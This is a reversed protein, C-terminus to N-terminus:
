GGCYPSIMEVMKKHRQPIIQQITKKNIILEDGFTQLLNDAIQKVNEECIEIRQKFMECTARVHKSTPAEFNIFDKLEHYSNNYMSVIDFTM